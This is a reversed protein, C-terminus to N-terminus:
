TRSTAASTPSGKKLVEVNETKLEDKAAGGHM